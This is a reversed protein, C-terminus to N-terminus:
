ESAVPASLHHLHSICSEPKDRPYKKGKKRGKKKKILIEGRHEANWDVKKLGVKVSNDRGYAM